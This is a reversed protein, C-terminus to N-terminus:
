GATRQDTPTWPPPLSRGGAPRTPDIIDSRLRTLRLEAIQWPGGQIRPYREHYHGWGRVAYGNDADDLWDYMAWVGTAEDPGTFEIDPMHGHHVTVATALARSVREVVNDAGSVKSPAQGPHVSDEIYFEVDDTFLSRWRDWEKTDLYRFYRSKLQQIAHLDAMQALDVNEGGNPGDTASLARGYRDPHQPERRDSLRLVTLRLVTLRLVTLRLV